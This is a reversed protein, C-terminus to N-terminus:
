VSLIQGFADTDLYAAYGGPQARQLAAFLAPGSAAADAAAVDRLAGHLQATYNVQYLDGAGIAAHIRALAADFRDRALPASWDVTVDAAVPEPWPLAQDYVAFRALPQTTQRHVTFDRHVIGVWFIHDRSTRRKM